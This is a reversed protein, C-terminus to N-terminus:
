NVHCMQRSLLFTIQDILQLPFSENRYSSLCYFQLFMAILQHITIARSCSFFIGRFITCRSQILSNTDSRSTDGPTDLNSQILVIPLCVCTFLILIARSLLNISLATRFAMYRVTRKMVRIGLREVLLNNWFLSCHQGCKNAGRLSLCYTHGGTSSLDTGKFTFALRQCNPSM